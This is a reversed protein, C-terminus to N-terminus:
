AGDKAQSRLLQAIEKHGSQEAIRIANTKDCGNVIDRVALNAALLSRVTSLDGAQAAYELPGYDNEDHQRANAGRALLANVLAANGNRAAAILPTQKYHDLANVDAGRSLLLMAIEHAAETDESQAAAILATSGGAGHDNVRAGAKALAKVTEVQGSRAAAALMPEKGRSVWANPNAGNSILLALLKNLEETPRPGTGGYRRAMAQDALHLVINGLTTDGDQDRYDGARLDFKKALILARAVPATAESSSASHVLGALDKHTKRAAQFLEDTRKAHPTQEWAKAWKLYLALSITEDAKPYGDFYALKGALEAARDIEGEHMLFGAYREVLNRDEPNVALAAEAAARAKAGDGVHQQMEFMWAYLRSKRAPNAEAALSKEAEEIARQWPNASANEYPAGGPNQRANMSETMYLTAQIFHIRAAPAGAKKADQLLDQACQSCNSRAAQEAKYLLAELHKPKAKLAEDALQVGRHMGFMPSMRTYAKALLVLYDPDNGRLRLTTEINRTLLPMKRTAAPSDDEILAAADELRVEGGDTMATADSEALVTSSFVLAALLAIATRM